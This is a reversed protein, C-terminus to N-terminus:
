DEEKIIAPVSVPNLFLAELALREVTCGREILLGPNYDWLTYSQIWAQREISDHFSTDFLWVEVSPRSGALARGARLLRALLSESGSGGRPPSSDQGRALVIWSSEGMKQVLNATPGLTAAARLCRSCNPQTTSREM